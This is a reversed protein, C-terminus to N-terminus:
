CNYDINERWYQLLLMKMEGYIHDSSKKHLKTLIKPADIHIQQINPHDFTSPSLSPEINTILRPIEMFECLAASLVNDAIQLEQYEANHMDNISDTDYGMSLVSFVWISGIGDGNWYM